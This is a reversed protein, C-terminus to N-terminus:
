SGTAADGSKAQAESQRRSRRTQGVVRSALAVAVLLAAGQFLPQIWFTGPGFVIELGAVGFALSSYAVLTGWVNPRRSFQSAGFFVAALAPFLLNSGADSTYIGVQMAYIVGAIGAVGGSAILSGYTLKDVPLGSLRAAEPNGGVAFLYRGVPTHELVFWIIIAIGLVYLVVLPVGFLNNNGLNEFGASFASAINTNNSVKLEAAALLESMALTAILSNVKFRVVAIGSLFGVACCAIIAGVAVAALPVDRHYLGFWNMIVLSLAMMAGISLDFVGASLPILFALGLLATVAGQSFTLRFTTATLFVHPSAISFIIIFVAWLIAASYSGLTVTLPKRSSRATLGPDLSAAPLVRRTKPRIRFRSDAFLANSKM